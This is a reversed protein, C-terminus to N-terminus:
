TRRRLLVVGRLMLLYCPILCCLIACRLAGCRPVLHCLVASGAVPSSELGTWADSPLLMWTPSACLVVPSTADLRPCRVQKVVPNMVGSAMPKMILSLFKVQSEM